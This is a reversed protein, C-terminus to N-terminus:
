VCTGPAVTVGFSDARAQYKRLGSVTWGPSGGAPDAHRYLSVQGSPAATALLVGGGLALLDYFRWGTGIRVARGANAWTVPGATPDGHRFWFLEGGRQRYLTGDGTPAILEDGTWGSGLVFGAGNVWSPAGTLRGTHQYLALRGDTRVTYIWGRAGVAINVVKTGPTFGTGVVTGSGKAWSSTAVDYRYWRLAGTSTLAYLVGDGGAGTWAFSGWGSGVTGTEALTAAGGLLQDDHLRYLAGGSLRTFGEAPACTAAPGPTPAPTPTPTATPVPTVVPTAVPPAATATPVAAFAATPVAVVTLATLVTVVASRSRLPRVM